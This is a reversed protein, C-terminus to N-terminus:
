EANEVAMLYVTASRDIDYYMIDLQWTNDNNYARFMSDNDLDVKWGNQEVNNIYTRYDDDGNFKVTCNFYGDNERDVKVYDTDPKPLLKANESDEPWGISENEADNNIM